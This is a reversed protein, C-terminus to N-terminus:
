LTVGFLREHFRRLIAATNDNGAIRAHMGRRQAYEAASTMATKRVVHDISATM